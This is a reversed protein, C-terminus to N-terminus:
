TADGFWLEHEAFEISNGAPDRFYLSRAGNPWDVRSELGHGAAELRKAVADQEARNARFCAHGPGSAGHPPVPLSGEGPTEVTEDPNFVLLVSAELEFFIHRDGIRKIKKLGLVTEYFREAADLDRAYLATELIAAM